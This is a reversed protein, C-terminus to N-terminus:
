AQHAEGMHGQEHGIAKLPAKAQGAPLHDEIAALARALQFLALALLVEEDGPGSRATRLPEAFFAPRLNRTLGERQPLDGEANAALAEARVPGPDDGRPQIGLAVRSLFQDVQVTFAPLDLHAM